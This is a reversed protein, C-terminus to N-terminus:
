TCNSCGYEVLFKEVQGCLLQDPVFDLSLQAIDKPPALVAYDTLLLYGDLRILFKEDAPYRIM